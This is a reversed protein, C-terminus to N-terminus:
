KKQGKDAKKVFRATAARLASTADLENEEAWASLAFLLEGLTRERNKGKGMQGVIEAPLQGDHAIGKRLAREYVKQARALAPLAHPINADLAPKAEGKGAARKEEQKIKEWNAVVEEANAVEVEGFVHPHRRILKAALEEGVEALTFEGEDAAIQAQFLVHLLVDGLEERLKAPDNEDLAEIVEYTEELLARRLSTHTQKRDWPCGGPARLRAVLAALTQPSGPESLPPLYLVAAQTVKVRTLTGLTHESKRDGDILTVPHSAPYNVLLTHRVSRALAGGTLNAILAPRDTDLRPFFDRAVEGADVVQLGRALPDLNLQSCVFNLDM